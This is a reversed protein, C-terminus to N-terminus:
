SDIDQICRKLLNACSVTKEEVGSVNNGTSVQAIEGM